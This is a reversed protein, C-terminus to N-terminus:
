RFQHQPITVNWGMSNYTLYKQFVSDDTKMKQLLSDMAMADIETTMNYAERFSYELQFSANGRNLDTLNVFYTRFHSIEETFLSPSKIDQIKYTETNEIEYIRFAPNNAGAGPLSSFWPTVAPSM